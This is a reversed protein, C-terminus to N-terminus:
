TKTGLSTFASMRRHLAPGKATTETQQLWFGFIQSGFAQFGAKGPFSDSSSPMAIASIYSLQVRRDEIVRRLMLNRMAIILALSVAKSLM